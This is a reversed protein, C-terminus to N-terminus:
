LVEGVVVLVFDMSTKGNRRTEDPLADFSCKALVLMLHHKV